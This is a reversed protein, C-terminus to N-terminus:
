RVIDEGQQHVFLSEITLILFEPLEASFTWRPDQLDALFRRAAAQTDECAYSSEATARAYELVEPANRAGGLIQLLQDSM